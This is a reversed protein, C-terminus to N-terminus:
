LAKIHFQQFSMPILQCEGSASKSASYSIDIVPKGDRNNDGGRLLVRMSVGGHNVEISHGKVYRTIREPGGELNHCSLESVSIASPTQTDSWDKLNCVAISHSRELNAIHEQAWKPLKAINEPTPTM